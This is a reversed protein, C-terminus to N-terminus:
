INLVRKLESLEFIEHDIWPETNGIAGRGWRMHITRMGLEHAPKLDMAIRDGCVWVDKPAVSFEKFCAEYFPKKISDEPIAIKSFFSRDVGAKELKEQQFTPSGGTVLALIHKKALEALVEKAKPTVLVPFGAPLPSTMEPFVKQVLEGRGGMMKVFSALADQSKLAKSNCEFLLKLASEFDAIKLGEKVLLELCRRMKFPTISGSTDIITDDLDFIILL